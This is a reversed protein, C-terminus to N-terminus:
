ARRHPQSTVCCCSKNWRSDGVYLDTLVRRLMSQDMRYPSTCGHKPVETIPIFRSAACRNRQQLVRHEERWANRAVDCLAGAHRRHQEAAGLPKQVSEGVARSAPSTSSPTLTTKPSSADLAERDLINQKYFRLQADDADIGCIKRIRDVAIQSSNSLDDVIVVSYGRQILEVCTHSGIFGAGGTVLISLDKQDKALRAQWSLRMRLLNEKYASGTRM